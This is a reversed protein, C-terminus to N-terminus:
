RKRAPSSPSFYKWALRYLVVAGVASGVAWYITMMWWERTDTGILVGHLFILIFMPFAFFHTSRWFKPHSNMTYLSTALILLLLYFGGIGLAVLLPRYPSLFPILVDTLKLNIFSDFLLSGVHTLMSVLLVSAIARHVSWATAPTFIRYLAGSTLLMGTVTLLGLLLFSAIGSARSTVWAWPFATSINQIPPLLTDTAAVPTTAQEPVSTTPATATNTTPVSPTTTVAPATTVTPTTVPQQYQYEYGSDDQEQETGENETEAHVRVAWGSAVAVTMISVIFGKKLLTM